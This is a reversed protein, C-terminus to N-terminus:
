GESTKTKQFIFLEEAHKRPSISDHPKERSLLKFGRAQFLDFIESETVAFPPGGARGDLPFALDIYTGNPGLLRTVLDAYEARRKPDIACFCTYELLYDFSADLTDPLTFLDHQLIQIPANPDNLRHMEHIADTAFDVATVQFGHRAFERADHGRGAGPVIMRGPQFRSSEALRKFVPTPGGLDWGDTHGQYNAEWKAPQNVDDTM